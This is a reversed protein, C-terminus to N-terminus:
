KTLNAQSAFLERKAHPKILAIKLDPDSGSTFPLKADEIKRLLLDGSFPL